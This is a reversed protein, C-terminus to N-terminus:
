HKSGFSERAASSRQGVYDELIKQDSPLIDYKEERNMLDGLWAPLGPRMGCADEVAEPFKAPHATALIVIPRRDTALRPGCAHGHGHTPDLLYGFGLVSPDGATEDMDARGAEFGARISALTGPEITFAGSQALGDMAQRVPSDRGSAEFLLREFNSSVQIDM